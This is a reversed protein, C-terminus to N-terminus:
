KHNRMEVGRQKKRESHTLTSGSNNTTKQLQKNSEKNTRENTRENTPEIALFIVAM